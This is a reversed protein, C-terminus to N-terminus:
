PMQVGFSAPLIQRNLRCRELEVAFNISSRLFRQFPTSIRRRLSLM